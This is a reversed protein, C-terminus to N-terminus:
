VDKFAFRYHDSGREGAVAAKFDEHHFVSVCTEVVRDGGHALAIFVFGEEGRDELVSSSELYTGAVVHARFHKYVSESAKFM